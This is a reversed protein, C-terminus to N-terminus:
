DLLEVIVVPAADGLRPGRRIIRTYGGPREQYRSAYQSFVKAAVEPKAVVKAVQRRAALDDTKAVTVLREVWRRVEKAKAETTEIRGHEFLATALNRTLAQRHASTRGLKRGAKLHRM